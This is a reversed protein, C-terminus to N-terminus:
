TNTVPVRGAQDGSPPITWARRAAQLYLRHRTVAQSAAPAGPLAAAQAVLELWRSNRGAAGVAAWAAGAASAAGEELAAIPVSAAAVTMQKDNAADRDVQRNIDLAAGMTRSGAAARLLMQVHLHM